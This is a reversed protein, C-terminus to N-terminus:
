ILSSAKFDSNIILFNIPSTFLSYLRLPYIVMGFFSLILILFNTIFFLNNEPIGILFYIGILILPLCFIPLLLKSINM